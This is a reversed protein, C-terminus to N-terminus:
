EAPTLSVYKLAANPTTPPPFLVVAAKKCDEPSEIVLTTKGASLPVSLRPPHHEDAPFWAIAVNAEAGDCWEVTLRYKTGPKVIVRESCWGPQPKEDVSTPPICRQQWWGDPFTSSRWCVSFDSFRLLNGAPSTTTLEVDHSTPRNAEVTVTAKAPLFGPRVVAMEYQGPPLNRFAYEGQPNSLTSYRTGLLMIKAVMSPDAATTTGTITGKLSGHDALPKLGVVSLTHLVDAVARACELACELELPEMAARDDKEALPELQKARPISFERLQQMRQIYGALAEDETSGLLRPQYGPIEIQKADVYNELRGHYPGLNRLAHPPAGTDETLHILSGLWGLANTPTETRLAQVTRRFIPEYARTVEPYCHGVSPVGPMFVFDRAWCRSNGIRIIEDNWTQDPMWSCTSLTGLDNGIFQLVPEDAPLIEAGARTIRPHPGWALASSVTSTAMLVFLTLRAIQLFTMKRSM